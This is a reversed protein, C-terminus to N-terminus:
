GDLLRTAAERVRLAVAEPGIERTLAEMPVELAVPIGPPMHRLVGLIDIGGEGPPLREARAHHLLGETTTPREAPVDCIHVFPLRAAPVRDIQDLTCGCRDFHLTDVLIGANARGTAEIIQAAHPLSAVNTWPFFELVTGIGYRAGLDCMEALRDTLRNLDPDYPSAIAYRAGLEAGAAFFPELGAIDIEPEIKVFEIDFVGVGTDAMAARTERLMPKDTMLPYGPSQPTVRIMRLGVTRYGTRAAVRILDPPPLSIATLHALSFDTVASGKM